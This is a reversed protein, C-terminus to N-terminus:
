SRGHVRKGPRSFLPYSPLRLVKGKGTLVDSSWRKSPGDNQEFLFEPLVGNPGSEKGKGSEGGFEESM